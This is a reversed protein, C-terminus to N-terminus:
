PDNDPLNSREQWLQVIIPRITAFSYGRRQLYGGMRRAFSAYDTATAYKRLAARALREAQADIDGVLEEDALTTDILESDVGKRRLEDRLAGPGRPSGNQRGEVWFRAFATDDLLGLDALRTIAAEILDHEFGKRQLRERIEAISRPRADLARLAARVAKESLEIRMLREYDAESLVLGVYLRERSLTTLGIGLAFVGDIFVNVRQPDSPQAQLTTITGAPM